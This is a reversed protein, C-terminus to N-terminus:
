KQLAHQVSANLNNNSKKLVVYFKNYNHLM